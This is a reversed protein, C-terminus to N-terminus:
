TNRFVRVLSDCISSAIAWQVEEWEGLLADILLEFIHFAMM